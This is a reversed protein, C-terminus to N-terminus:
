WSTAPLRVTFRAGGEPAHGAEVTGGLRHALGAVIALGLGTGVQRVGRYRDYLASRDFAVALDDETLGPGGDRVEFLACRRGDPTHESRAGLVIPAGAPTVRLANELLGDVIQRVRAPDTLVPLPGPPLETRFGVGAAACRDAWVRDAEAIVAVLDLPAPDVRFDQANLRALDLLDSVLRNLRRAETLMTAGVAPAQEPPIVEDALSEAYGSIATLPTRLEHSVSLLFERQRAESHSLAAALTNVATAVEVVEAPGEPRVAVDRQGAALAHAAQATRRLPRSIRVAVLLGLLVAIAMAILLAWVIRRVARDGVATADAGRQALAIGGTRTPRAEILVRHGAVARQASVARGALVAAVDASTLAQRLLPSGTVVQGAPGISASQIKLVRLQERARNQSARANPGSDATSKAVDALQSLTRRAAGTNSRRVLNVALVGALLATIVAVAVALLSIRQALSRM